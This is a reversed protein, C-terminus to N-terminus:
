PLVRMWCDKPALRCYVRGYELSYGPWFLWSLLLAKIENWAWGGLCGATSKKSDTEELLEQGTNWCLELVQQPHFPGVFDLFQEVTVVPHGSRCCFPMWAKRFEADTLHPEVLIQSTGAVSDGKFARTDM